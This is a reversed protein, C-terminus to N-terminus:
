GLNINIQLANGPSSNGKEAGADLGAVRIIFKLLDAKVAPPIVGAQEHIMKWATKLLEEAQLKAKSKFTMGELQLMEHSLEVDKRFRDSQVIDLWEVETYGYAQRISEPDATRLAFEIPLTPPYGMRAPDDRDTSFTAMRAQIIAPLEKHTRRKNRAAPGEDELLAEEESFLQEVRDEFPLDDNEESKKRRARANATRQNRAPSIVEEPTLIPDSSIDDPPSAKLAEVIADLDMDEIDDQASVDFPKRNQAM